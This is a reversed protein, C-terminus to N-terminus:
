DELLDALTIQEYERPETQKAQMTQVTWSYGAVTEILKYDNLIEITVGPKHKADHITREFEERSVTITRM